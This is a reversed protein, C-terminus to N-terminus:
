ETEMRNEWRPNRVRFVLTRVTLARIRDGKFTRCGQTPHADSVAGCRCVLEVPLEEIPTSRAPKVVVDKGM